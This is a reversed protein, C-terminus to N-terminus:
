AAAQHFIDDGLDQLKSIAAQCDAFIVVKRIPPGANRGKNNVAAIAMGLAGAIDGLEAHLYLQKIRTPAGLVGHGDM